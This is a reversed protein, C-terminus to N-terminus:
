REVVFCKAAERLGLYTVISIESKNVITRIACLITGTWSEKVSFSFFSGRIKFCIEFGVWIGYDTLRVGFWDMANVSIFVLRM